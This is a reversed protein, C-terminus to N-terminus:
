SDPKHNMFSSFQMCPVNACLPDDLLKLSKRFAALEKAAHTLYKVFDRESKKM